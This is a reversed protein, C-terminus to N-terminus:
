RTFYLLNQFINYNLTLEVYSFIPLDPKGCILRVPSEGILM